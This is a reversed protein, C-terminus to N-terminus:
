GNTAYRKPPIVTMDNLLFLLTMDHLPFMNNISGTRYFFSIREACIVARTRTWFACGVCSLWIIYTWFMSVVVTCTNRRCRRVLLPLRVVAQRACVVVSACVVASSQKVAGEAWRLMWVPGPPPGNHPHSYCKGLKNFNSSKGSRLSTAPLIKAWGV